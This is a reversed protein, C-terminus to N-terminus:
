SSIRHDGSPRTVYDQISRGRKERKAMKLMRIEM